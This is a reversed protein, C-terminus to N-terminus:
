KTTITRSGPGRGYSTESHIPVRRRSGGSSISSRVGDHSSGIWRRAIGRERSTISSRHHLESPQLISTPQLVRAPQRQWM